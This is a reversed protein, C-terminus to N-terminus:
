YMVVSERCTFFARWWEAIEVYAPHESTGGAANLIEGGSPPFKPGLLKANRNYSVSSANMIGHKVGDHNLCIEGPSHIVGLDKPMIDGNQGRVQVLVVEDGLEIM